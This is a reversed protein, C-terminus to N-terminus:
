QKGLIENECRLYVSLLNLSATNRVTTYDLIILTKVHKNIKQKINNQKGRRTYSIETNLLINYM